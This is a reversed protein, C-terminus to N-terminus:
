LSSIEEFWLICENLGMLFQILRREQEAKFINEKAGCSCNCSCQTKPQLTSLEEWFKKMRTYYTTINLTGLSLENIERQVQYLKARNMQDYWNDLEKWLEFSDNVYEVIDTIEKALSNLIWSTVMDDCREWQRYRSTGPDPRKYEGNIFGLKNKVSLARLVGRRWSRYRVGDFPIPVLSAGPNDSPHMYMPSSADESSVGSVNAGNANSKEGNEVVM